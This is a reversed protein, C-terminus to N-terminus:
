GTPSHGNTEPRAEGRPRRMERYDRAGGTEPEVELLLGDIGVVRVIEGSGVPTARNTYARWPVERITVTGSPDIDDLATGMEGVMWERGITPTSFRTRVMAPMGSLFTLAIGAIGVIAALWGMSFEAYLTFTGV